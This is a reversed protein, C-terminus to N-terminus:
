REEQAIEARNAECNAFKPDVTIREMRPLEFPTRGCCSTVAEGDAIAHVTEPADQWYEPGSMVAQRRRAGAITPDPGSM